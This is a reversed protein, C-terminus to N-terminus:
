VSAHPGLWRLVLITFDDAAEAGAVFTEVDNQLAGILARATTAGGQRHIM